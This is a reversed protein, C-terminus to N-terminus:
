LKTAPRAKSYVRYTLTHRRRDEQRLLRARHQQAHPSPHRRDSPDCLEVRRDRARSLRHRSHDRKRDSRPFGPTPQSRTSPRSGHRSTRGILRIASVPGIGDIQRLRTAPEELAVTMQAEIDALGADVASLERVFDRALEECTREAPSEPRITRLLAAASKATLALAAGGPALDRLVAHLLNAIRVRQAAVIARREELIAFVTTHDAAAVATADDHLAAVSAAAAADIV